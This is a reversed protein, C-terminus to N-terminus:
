RQINITEEYVSARNGDTDEPILDGHVALWLCPSSTELVRHRVHRRLLVHDGARLRVCTGDDYGLVAEGQLVTVWEDQEQDYWEGPPTTQGNSVIREVRLRSGGALLEFTEEAPLPSPLEYLNFM